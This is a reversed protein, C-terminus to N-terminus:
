HRAAGAERKGDVRDARRQGYRASIAPLSHWQRRAFDIKKACFLCHVDAALESSKGSKIFHSVMFEISVKTSPANTTSPTIRANCVIKRVRSIRERCIWFALM